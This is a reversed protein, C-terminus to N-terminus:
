EEEIEMAESPDDIPKPHFSPKYNNILAGLWWAPIRGEQAWKDRDDYGDIEALRDEVSLVIAKIGKIHGNEFGASYGRNYGRSLGVERGEKNGILHGSDYGEEFGQSKGEKLGMKYHKKRINEERKRAIRNWEIKLERIKKEQENM